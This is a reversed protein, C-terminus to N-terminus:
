AAGEQVDVGDTIADIEASEKIMNFYETNELIWEKIKDSYETDRKQVENMLIKLSKLLCIKKLFEVQKSIWKDFVKNLVLLAFGVGGSYPVGKIFNGKVITSIVQSVLIMLVCILFNVFRSIQYGIKWLHIGEIYRLAKEKILLKHKSDADQKYQDRENMIAQHRRADDIEILKVIDKHTIKRVDGNSVEYVQKKLFSDYKLKYLCTDDIEDRQKMFEIQKLYEDWFDDSVQQMALADTIIKLTPLKDSPTSAKLWIMSTFNADDVIAPFDRRKEVNKFYEKMINSLLLNTTIFLAECNELRMYDSRSRKIYMSCVSIVDNERRTKSKYHLRKSLYEEAQVMDISCNQVTVDPTPSIKVGYKELESKINSKHLLIEAPRTKNEILYEFNYTEDLSNNNYHAVYADFVGEVELVIHEFTLIEVNLSVLLTILEEVSEKYEKGSIGLLYIILPTDLYVSLNTIKKDTKFNKISENSYFATSLMAGKVIERIYEFLVTDNDKIYIIYKGIYYNYMDNKSNEIVDSCNEYSLVSIGYKCLFSVLKSELKDSDYQFDVTYNNFYDKLSKFVANQHEIVRSRKGMFDSKDYEKDTYYFIGDKVKTYQYEENTLRRLISEIVNKPLYINFRENLLNATQKVSIVKNQKKEDELILLIFPIIMDYYDKNNNGYELSMLAFSNMVNTTNM